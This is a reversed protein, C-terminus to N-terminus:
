KTITKTIQLSKSGSFKVAQLLGLGFLKGDMNDSHPGLSGVPMREVTRTLFFLSAAGCLFCLLM